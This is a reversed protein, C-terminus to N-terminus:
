PKGNQSIRFPTETKNEPFCIRSVAKEFDKDGSLIDIELRLYYLPITKPFDRAIRVADKETTVLFELKEKEAQDFVHQLEEDTFRHHDLFRRSYM